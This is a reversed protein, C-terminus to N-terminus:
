KDENLNDHGMAQIHGDNVKMKRAVGLVGIVGVALLLLITGKSISTSAYTEPYSIQNQNSLQSIESETTHLLIILTLLGIIVVSIVACLAFTKIKM